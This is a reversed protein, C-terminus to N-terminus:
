VDPYKKLIQILDFLFNTKSLICLIKSLEYEYLETRQIVFTNNRRQPAVNNKDRSRSNLSVCQCVCQTICTYNYVDTYIMSCAFLINIHLYIVRM